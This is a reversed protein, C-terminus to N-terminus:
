LVFFVVIGSSTVNIAMAIALCVIMLVEVGRYRDCQLVSTCRFCALCGVPVVPERLKSCSTFTGSTGSIGWRWGMM